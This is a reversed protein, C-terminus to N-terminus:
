EKKEQESQSVPIVIQFVIGKDIESRLRITGNVEKIRDRVLNLGIGRGGHVGEVDATSFGPAFIAKLLMNENEAEEKKIIKRSIAKKAIKKYDLGKGDDSYRIHIQKGNEAMKISLKVTGTENKGKKVREDPAEIGHVVSNRVLQTLIEKIVRRPGIEIAHADIDTAVLKAQNEIEESAKSIATALSDVLLKVNKKEGSEGSGGAYTKLKSIVEKFGEREKSIIEIDMILTLMENFSVEGEKERLKKIKSELNHVKNGFINLGLIVANSKVAHVSQYVKVLVEHPSIADNRLTKDITGFEHEMDDMFDSFVDPDVQILEFIAQMEEQRKGEEEELRKQLEVRATIDYITVLLFVEGRGREVITFTCQFVKTDSTDNNVYHLENLPNIDELMDQDYTQELVMRFYDKISSLENTSVSDAIIDPFFRGFLNKQSLLEELYRSYHDQIIFNNDMFFIGIRLSDKMAAIEDREALYTMDYLSILTGGSGDQLGHSAAKFYRKQGDLSFEWDEAYDEKEKLLKGANLKLSRGPFLDLLPRGQVLTPDETNTLSSLTKSAYIVHNQSDIMAVYNETTALLENFSHQQELARNLVVTASRTLMLLILSSFLCAIWYYFVLFLPTGPGSITFGMFVLYATLLNQAIIFFLTRRYNSYICSITCVALSIIFYHSVQWNAMSMLVVYFAMLVLPVNFALKHHNISTNIISYVTIIGLIIVLWVFIINTEINSIRIEIIYAASIFIIMIVSSINAFKRLKVNEIKKKAM